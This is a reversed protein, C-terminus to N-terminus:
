TPDSDVETILEHFTEGHALREYIHWKGNRDACYLSWCNSKPHYEFRAIKSKSWERRSGDWPPRREFLVVENRRYAYEFQIRDRISAPVRRDYLATLEKACMARLLEPIAM